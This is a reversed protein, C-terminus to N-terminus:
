ICFVDMFVFIVNDIFCFKYKELSHLILKQKHNFNTEPLYIFVLVDEFKLLDKKLFNFVFFDIFDLMFTDPFIFVYIKVDM